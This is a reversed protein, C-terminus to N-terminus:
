QLAVHYATIVLNELRPIDSKRFLYSVCQPEAANDPDAQEVRVFVLEVSSYGRRLVALAYCQAQLEHKKRVQEPLEDARGGTKYDVVLAPGLDEAACESSRGLAASTGSHAPIAAAAASPATFDASDFAPMACADLTALLDIEGELHLPAGQLSDSGGDDEIRLFFPVEARVSGYAAVRAALSSSFWRDLAADLRMRRGADLDCSRCLAAVRDHPPRLLAGGEGRVLVAYQALRHFATGLDTADSSGDDEEGADSFDGALGASDGVSGDLGSAHPAISSYSFVGTREFRNEGDPLTCSSEIAFVDYLDGAGSDVLAVDVKAADVAGAVDEKAADVAGAVDGTKGSNTEAPELDIREFAAPRQGGFDFTAKGEPFVGGPGCLASQIDAALGKSAGAPDDKTRKGTLSVVLVEKARTLAVYLLRRSEQREAEAQLMCLATYRRGASEHAVVAESLEDEDCDAFGFSAQAAKALLTSSKAGAVSAGLDLAAFATGRVREVVLKDTRAAGGGLEAVAVIPFELGKSAHVTMIRVFDGGAASLAGPAEKAVSVKLAFREAVSAPGAAGNAEVSEVMRVAKLVNAARAQGEAGARELRSMWGCDVIAQAMIASVPKRGASDLMKGVAAAAAELQPSADDGDALAALGSWLDRRHPRGDEGFYTSLLLFDDASLVFMESSLVEFLALSDLPNAIARALSVMLQVEPARNFISGKVVVCPFGAHRLEAAYVDARTTSGLLLVMDGPTHGADRLASFRRAIGAAAQRCVEASSVGRSPATVLSVDIRPGESLFPRTVRAEDRSPSLSMFSSGFTQPQEFVRDVFSLVDAHSRFNDPLLILGDPNEAQVAAAHRRYVSVDAGRFRYISQQADGVTCLRCAGPGALRKIMDVQLQDTDQFEDVMVLRFRDAYDAAMAPCREFAQATEVLLDDNDLGGERRKLRRYEILVKGALLKADELLPVACGFRAEAMCEKYGEATDVAFERFDPTGFGRGPVPFANLADVLARGGPAGAGSALMENCSEIAALTGDMLADRRTGPKQAGAAEVLGEALGLMRRMVEGPNAAVPVRVAEVGQPSAAAASVLARVMGDVSASGFAGQSRAPFEAFLADLGEPSVFDSACSLVSEVAEDLLTRAHAEDIVSFAPDLGLELAHSRLMRACAGHITSIWAADVKLAQEVLGKARLAGRVRSKLEAAAKTTFTIALVQGIDDIAGTALANVIRQTLTFTKGSGAGASVVLPADLTQICKIQGPKLAM